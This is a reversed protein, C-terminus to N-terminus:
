DTATKMQYWKETKTTKRWKHTIFNMSKSLKAVCDQSIESKLGVGLKLLVTEIASGRTAAAYKTTERATKRKIVAKYYCTYFISLGLLIRLCCISDCTYLFSLFCCVCIKVIAWLFSLSVINSEQINDRVIKMVIYRCCQDVTM